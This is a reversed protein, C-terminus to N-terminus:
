RSWDPTTYEGKELPLPQQRKGDLTSVWLERSGRRTSTFLVLRGNPSFCAEENNGEGQTIREVKGSDVAVTFVDFANREDRATFVVLDGRPSWDPTQNYAGQFTLRRVNSGDANMVYVQPSGARNSVFALQRGDPSWTPSTNIYNPTNTVQRADSGDARAVHIQASEGQALAYALYRGDPSYAVGTAMQGKQELPRPAGGPRQAYLDPKGKMYSTFAVAEEGPLVAPLLNLGGQTVRRANKGDWDALYVDKNAGARRVYAIHGRFPGPEGTFQEYVKDALLHALKRVDRAPGSESLKFKETGSGVTFARLDARVGDGAQALEVKVLVEAGVDSWRPFSISSVTAGEGPSALFGKRDLVDFIGAATFDFLLADDFERVADAPAGRPLASPYALPLPRFNAGSIEVVRQAAAPLPLTALLLLLTPRLPSM